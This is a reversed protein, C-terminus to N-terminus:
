YFKLKYKAIYEDKDKIKCWHYKTCYEIYILTRYKLTNVINSEFSNEDYTNAKKVVLKATTNFMYNEDTTLIKTTKTKNKVLSKTIKQVIVDDDQVKINQPENNNKDKGNVEIMESIIKPIDKTSVLNNNELKAVNLANLRAELEFIKNQMKEFKDDNGSGNKMIPNSSFEINKLNNNKLLLEIQQKMQIIDVSNNQTINKNHEVEDLLSYFGIKFM